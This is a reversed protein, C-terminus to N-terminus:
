PAGKKTGTVLLSSREPPPYSGDLLAQNLKQGFLLVLLNMVATRNFDVTWDLAQGACEIKRLIIRQEDPIKLSVPVPGSTPKVVQAIAQSVQPNRAQLSPVPDADSCADWRLSDTDFEVSAFEILVRLWHANSPAPIRRKPHVEGIRRALVSAGKIMIDLLEPRIKFATPSVHTGEISPRAM